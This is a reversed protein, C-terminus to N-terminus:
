ADAFTRQVGPLNLKKAAPQECRVFDVRVCRHDHDILARGRSEPRVRLRDTLMKSYHLALVNRHNANNVVDLAAEDRLGHTRDIQWARSVRWNLREHDPGWPEICIM